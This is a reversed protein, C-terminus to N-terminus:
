LTAAYPIAPRFLMRVRDALGPRKTMDPTYPMSAYEGMIRDGGAQRIGDEHPEYQRHIGLISYGEKEPVARFFFEQLLGQGSFQTVKGMGLGGYPTRKIQYIRMDPFAYTLEAALQTKLGLNTRKVEISGDEAIFDPPLRRDFRLDSGKLRENLAKPENNVKAVRTIGRNVSDYVFSGDRNLNEGLYGMFAERTPIATYGDIADSHIVEIRVLRDAINEGDSIIIAGYYRENEGDLRYRNGDDDRISGERFFRLARPLNREIHFDVLWGFLPDHSM